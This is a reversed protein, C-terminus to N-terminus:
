VLFLAKWALVFADHFLHQASKDTSQTLDKETGCSCLSSSNLFSFDSGHRACMEVKGVILVIIIVVIIIIIIWM